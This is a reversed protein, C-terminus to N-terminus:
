MSIKQYLLLIQEETLCKDDICFKQQITNSNHSHLSEHTHSKDLKNIRDPHIKNLFDTILKGSEEMENLDEMAELLCFLQNKYNKPNLKLATITKHEPNSLMEEIDNFMNSNVVELINKPNLVGELFREILEDKWECGRLKDIAIQQKPSAREILSKVDFPNQETLEKNLEIENKYITIKQKPTAKEDFSNLKINNSDPLIDETITEEEVQLNAVEDNELSEIKESVQRKKDRFSNLEKNLDKIEDSLGAIAIYDPLENKQLIKQEDKKSKKQEKILDIRSDYMDKMSNLSEIDMGELNIQENVIDNTTNEDDLNDDFHEFLNTNKSKILILNGTIDYRYM